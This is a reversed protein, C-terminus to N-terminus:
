GRGTNRRSMHAKGSGVEMNKSDTAVRVRSRATAHPLAEMEKERIHAGMGHIWSGVVGVV